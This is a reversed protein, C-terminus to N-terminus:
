GCQNKTDGAVNFHCCGYINNIHDVYYPKRTCRDCRTKNDGAIPYRGFMRFVISVMASTYYLRNVMNGITKRHNEISKWMNQGDLGPGSLPRLVRRRRRPLPHALGKSLVGLSPKMKKKLLSKCHYSPSLIPAVLWYVFIGISCITFYHLIVMRFNPLDDIM